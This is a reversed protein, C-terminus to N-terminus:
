AGIGRRPEQYRGISNAATRLWDPHHHGYTAVLTKESMSLYRAAVTIDTGSQMLWSAATHRLTHPTVTPLPRVLTCPAGDVTAEKVKKWTVLGARICAGAFGKKINGIPKGNIHLVPGLDSGRRRARELHPLLRDPIPVKGRRKKTRVRGEIEFDILGAHLDIQSWRLSLIAEKRRGTYLGILVFLPM